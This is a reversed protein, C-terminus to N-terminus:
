IQELKVQQAGFGGAPEEGNSAVPGVIQGIDPQGSKQRHQPPLDHVVQQEAAPDQSVGVRHHFQGGKLDPLANECLGPHCLAGHVEIRGGMDGSRQSQAQDAGGGPHHQGVTDLIPVLIQLQDQAVLHGM